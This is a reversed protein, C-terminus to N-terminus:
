RRIKDFYQERTKGDGGGFSESGYDEQDRLPTPVSAHALIFKSTILEPRDAAVRYAGGIPVKGVRFKHSHCFVHYKLQWRSTSSLGRELSGIFILPLIVHKFFIM